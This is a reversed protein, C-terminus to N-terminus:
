EDDVDFTDSFDVKWAGNELNLDYTRVNSSGGQDTRLQVTATNGKVQQQVTPNATFKFYPQSEKWTSAKQTATLKDLAQVTRADFFGRVDQWSKATTLAKEFETVTAVPDPGALLPAVLLLVFLVLRGM